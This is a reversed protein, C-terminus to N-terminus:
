AKIRALLLYGGEKIHKGNDVDNIFLPEIATSFDHDEFGEPQKVKPVCYWAIGWRREMERKSVTERCFNIGKTVKEPLIEARIEFVIGKPLSHRADHIAINMVKQRSYSGESYDVSFSSGHEEQALASEGKDNWLTIEFSTQDKTSTDKHFAHVGAHNKNNSCFIGPCEKYEHNCASM